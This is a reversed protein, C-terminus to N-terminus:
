GDENTDVSSKGALHIRSLELSILTGIHAVATLLERKATELRLAARILDLDRQKISEM